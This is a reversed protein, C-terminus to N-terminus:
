VKLQATFTSPSFGPASVTVTVPGVSTTADAWFRLTDTSTVSVGVGSTLASPTGGSNLDYGMTFGSGPDSWSAAVSLTVTAGTTLATDKPSSKGLSGTPAGLINGWTRLTPLQTASLATLTAGSMHREAGLVVM